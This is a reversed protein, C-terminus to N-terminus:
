RRRDKRGPPRRNFWGKPTIGIPPPTPHVAEADPDVAPAEPQEAEGSTEPAQQFDGNDENEEEDHNM